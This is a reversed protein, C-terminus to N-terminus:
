EPKEGNAVLPCGRVLVRDRDVVEVIRGDRHDCRFEPPDSLHDCGHCHSEIPVIADVPESKPEAADNGENADTERTWIDLNRSLGRSRNGPESSDNTPRSQQATM